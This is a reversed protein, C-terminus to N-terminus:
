LGCVRRLLLYPILFVLIILLAAILLVFTDMLVWGIMTHPEGIHQVLLEFLSTM